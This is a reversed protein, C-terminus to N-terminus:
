KHAWPVHIQYINIFMQLSTLPLHILSPEEQHHTTIACPTIALVTPLEMNVHLVEKHYPNCHVPVPQGALSHLRRRYLYEVCTQIGAQQLSGAKATPNSKIIVQPGM